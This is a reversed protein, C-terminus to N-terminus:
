QKNIIQTKPYPIEIGESDLAEKIKKRLDREMQWQTLPKSRGIIRITVGSANLSNVGLIEIPEEINDENESKFQTCVAQLLNTTKEIDEEYAVEVDVMFRINGKSHNTVQIVSGNPILHVDGTFDRIVTTRIGITEVIGSFTGITIHDGVGFQDEFLIFFGNIIDKVLSQAGFGLAFGGVSAFAVSIGSFMDSLMLAVGIFYTMYKLVSKLVEGITIAKQADMSFRTNSEQQRQVFKKIIRNGIKIALYMLIAIVIIRIINNIVNEIESVKISLGAFDITEQTTNINVLASLSM